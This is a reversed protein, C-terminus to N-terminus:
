TKLLFLFFIIKKKLQFNENKVVKFDRYIAHAHKRLSIWAICSSRPLSPCFLAPGDCLMQSSNTLLM